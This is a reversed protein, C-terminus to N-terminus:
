GRPRGRLGQPFRRRLRREQRVLAEPRGRALLAHSGRAPAPRREHGESSAVAAACSPDVASLAAGCGQRHKSPGFCVSVCMVRELVKKRVARAAPIVLAASAPQPMIDFASVAVKLPAMFAALSTGGLMVRPLPMASAESSLFVLTRFYRM